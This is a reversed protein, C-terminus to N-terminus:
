IFHEHCEFEIQPTFTIATNHKQISSSKANPGFFSFEFYFFM